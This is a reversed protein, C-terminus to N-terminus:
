LLEKAQSSLRDEQEKKERPIVQAENVPHSAQVVSSSRDCNLGARTLGIRANVHLYTGGKKNGNGSNAIKQKM